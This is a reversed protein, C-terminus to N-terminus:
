EEEYPTFIFEVPNPTLMMPNGLQPIEAPTWGHGDQHGRRVICTFVGEDDDDKECLLFDSAQHVTACLQLENRFVTMWLRKDGVSLFKVCGNVSPVMCWVAHVNKKL